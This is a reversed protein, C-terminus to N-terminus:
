SCSVFLCGILFQLFHQILDHNDESEDITINAVVNLEM